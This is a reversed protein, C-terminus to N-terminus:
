FIRSDKQKFNKIRNHHVEMCKLGWISISGETIFGGKYKNPSIDINPRGPTRKYLFTFENNQNEQFLSTLLAKIRNIPLRNTFKCHLHFSNKGTYLIKIGRIFGSEKMIDYIIPTIKIAKNWDDTDIDVVCFDEYAKMTSYIATTRGHIITDYNNNNLQIYEANAGKRRIIPKNVDVMIAFMLDRGRTNTLIFGKYKQYYEWVMGETLGNPYFSNKIIITDPNVPTPM